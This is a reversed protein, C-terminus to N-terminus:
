ECNLAEVRAAREGLGPMLSRLMRQRCGAVSCITRDEGLECAKTRGQHRASIQACFATLHDPRIGSVM